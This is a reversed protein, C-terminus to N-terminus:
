RGGKKKSNFNKNIINKPCYPKLDKKHKAKYSENYIKEMEIKPPLLFLKNMPVIEKKLPEVETRRFGYLKAKEENSLKKYEEKKISILYEVEQSESLFKKQEDSLKLFDKYYIAAKIKRKDM